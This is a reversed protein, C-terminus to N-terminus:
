VGFASFAPIMILVMVIGLMMMMPILLKTAAEEGAQKKMNFQEVISKEAEERLRVLLTNSGKKINQALLSSFRIYELLGSRKGFQEYAAGESVGAQLEHCTFVMEEYAPHTMGGEKVTILYIEAIRQYAGRVTMGASLYLLMKNVILPYAERMGSTRKELKDHLDKDMLFFVAFAAAMAMIWLLFSYDETKEEWSVPQGEWEEPLKWANDKRSALEEEQLVADLRKHMKEEETMFAPIVSIELNHEWVHKGYTVKAELVVNKGEEQRVEAVLGTNSIIEPADSRWEVSFPYGEWTEELKLDQTVQDLAVNDDLIERSVKQWFEKELRSAEERSLEQPEVMIEFLRESDRGIDAKLVVKRTGGKYDERRIMGDQTLRKELDAQVTVAVSLVTGLLFVVLMTSIKKVYYDTQLPVSNKGPSLRELDREVQGANWLFVGWLLIKKYIFLAMRYFPTILGNKKGDVAERGSLWGLLLYCVAVIAAILYM